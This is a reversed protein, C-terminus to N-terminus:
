EDRPLLKPLNAVRMAAIAMVEAGQKLDDPRAKDFTDSQSHHTLRYEAPNQQFAFGPVGVADFSQHDSGGVGRSNIEVGLKKLCALEKELVPKCNELGQTGIATVKGTGTDHVLAMSTKSMEKAHAKVYERSGHLGEEEGTFLVFRITRKPKVGCKALLRATELVVSSGTGNDTTGTGLDWSDLHAGVVVFEDPKESGKIEGVTNYVAVPGPVFKNTIEVEARTKADKRTALRYLLAYHDHTVYLQPIPEGAAQRDGGGRGWSGSMNLLGHPKGSDTLTCAVGEARLLEAIERQMPGGRGFGGRRGQPQVPPQAAEAAGRAGGANANAGPPAPPPAVGGGAAARAGGAGQAGAAGGAGAQGGQGGQGGRRGGRGGGAIIYPNAGSEGIPAVNSPQSRLVIANKLKGKYAELEKPTTANVYVVDGVIKGKTSPSWGAAAATIMRGNEPELLKFTVNGREWGMPITWPELHVNELGYSKMKEATYENARKLNASGTLRPGIVDSIHQLNAMIESNKTEDAIIKADLEAAAKEEPTLPKEEVFGIAKQESQAEPATAPKKVPEQALSFAAFGSLGLAFALARVGSSAAHKPVGRLLSRMRLTEM